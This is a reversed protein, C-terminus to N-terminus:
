SVVKFALAVADDLTLKAGEKWAEDFASEDIRARITALTRENLNATYVPEVFGVEQNLSRTASILRAATETDGRSVAVRAVISLDMGIEELDSGGQAQWIRISEVMLPVAERVRGDEVAYFALADLALMVLTEYGSLRAQRLNDRALDWTHARDGLEYHDLALADIAAIVYYDNGLERFREVSEAHLRQATPWDALEQAAHGLLYTSYAIGFRDDLVRYLALAEEGWRRASSFDGRAQAMGTAGNLAKARPPTPREDALLAAEIRRGGEAYHGRINWFRWLAGVMRLLVQGDGAKELEDLAARLNDHEAELRDLWLVSEMGRAHPEAEEALALFFEAGRNRLDAAEGSADLREVAFARITELMSFRGDRRRLLSKDVLSQLADFDAQAIAEAAELTWGGRFVSLRAFLRQEGATLLDHSWEITARLTAQRADADRGGKFLDLRKSLRELIQAPTLVSTRAAALEVALPLDDLRRCLEAITQDAALSARDSFLTVAESEALPPVGFEREGRVRLLERSTVLLRLNPCSEVLTALGPAAATVQELNDLLLLLEKDGIHERLTDKAGLVSAIKDSVLEPDRIAALDVWFTGNKFNPVLETATEIALRTKGTGGPGTLTVLRAGDRLLAGLEAVQRERGVFSSAPRPLNTNSITKLPPFRDAGLQYIWVPEVFDKVRHEGLDLLEGADDLLERTQRSLVVQGGHASATIRAGLHVDTGVYGGDAIHPTGAHLGMRVRIPGAALARQADAAASLAEGPEAFAVFFEDGESDVEVGRHRAWAARLLRRHEALASAYAEPGLEHLLRTSGEIDTFLFTVTGAPLDPRM